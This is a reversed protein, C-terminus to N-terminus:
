ASLGLKQKLEAVSNPDALLREVLTPPKPMQAQEAAAAANVAIEEETYDRQTEVGTVVNIERVSM